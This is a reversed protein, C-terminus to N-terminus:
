TYITVITPEYDEEESGRDRSAGRVQASFRKRNLSDTAAAAAARDYGDDDNGGGVGVFAGSGDHRLFADRNVTAAAAAAAATAATTTAAKSSRGSPVQGAPGM